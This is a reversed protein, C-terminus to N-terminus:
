GHRDAGTLANLRNAFAIMHSGLAGIDDVESVVTMMDATISLIADDVVGRAEPQQSLAAVAIRKAYQSANEGPQQGPERNLADLARQEVKDM